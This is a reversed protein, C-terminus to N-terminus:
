LDLNFKFVRAVVWNINKFNGHLGWTTSLEHTIVFVKIRLVDLQWKNEHVDSSFHLSRKMWCMFFLISGVVICMCSRM